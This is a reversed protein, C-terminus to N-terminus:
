RKFRMWLGAWLFVFFLVFGVTRVFPTVGCNAVVMWGIAHGDIYSLPEQKM